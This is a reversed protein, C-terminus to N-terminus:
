LRGLLAKRIPGAPKNILKGAKFMKVAEEVSPIMIIKHKKVLQACQLIIRDNQGGGNSTVEGDSVWVIPENPHRNKIGWVLAPGDVGNGAGGINPIERVRWGRKALLWANVTSYHNQSYALITAAPAAEVIAEIDQQSLSMSGSIDVIVMGGKVRVKNTFIRREPDTYWRSVNGLKRGVLAPKRKRNMFGEVQVSLPLTDDIVLEAFDGDEDHPFEYDDPLDDELPTQDPDLRNDNQEAQGYEELIKDEEEQRQQAVSSPSRRGNAYNAIESAAVLTNNYGRPGVVDSSYHYPMTSGLDGPTGDFISTLRGALKRLMDSWDPNVSRVGAAFSDFASKNAYNRVTFEVADEWDNPSGATAMRIGSKKEAGTSDLELGKIKAFPETVANIRAEEALNLLARTVGNHKYSEAVVKAVEETQLGVRARILERLQTRRSWDDGRLPVALVKAAWDVGVGMQGTTPEVTWTTTEAIDDRFATIAGVLPKQEDAM